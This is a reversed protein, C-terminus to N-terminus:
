REFLVQYYIAKTAAPLAPNITNPNLTIMIKLKQAGKLMDCGKVEKVGLGQLFQRAQVLNLIDSEEALHDMGEFSAAVTPVSGALFTLHTGRLVPCLLSFPNSVTLFSTRFSHACHPCDRSCTPQIAAAGIDLQWAGCAPCRLAVPKLGARLTDGLAQLLEERLM